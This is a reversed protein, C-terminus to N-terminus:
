PGSGPRALTFGEKTVTRRFVAAPEMRVYTLEARELWGEPEIWKGDRRWQGNSFTAIWRTIQVGHVTGFLQRVQSLGRQEKREPDLAAVLVTSRVAGAAGGGQPSALEQVAAQWPSLVAWQTYHVADREPSSKVEGITARYGGGAASAGARFPVRNVTRPKVLGLWLEAEYRSPTRMMRATWSPPVLMLGQVRVAGPAPRNPLKGYKTAFRADAEARFTATAADPPTLRYGPLWQNTVVSL